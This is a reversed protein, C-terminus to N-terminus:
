YIGEQKNDTRYHQILKMSGRDGEYQLFDCNALKPINDVEEIPVNELLFRLARMVYGHSAVLVTDGYHGDFFYNLFLSIRDTADIMSEGGPPVGHFQGNLKFSEQLYPYYNNLEEKTLFYGYGNARERILPVQHTKVSDINLENKIIELTQRARVMGSHITSDYKLNLEKLIKSIEKAENKGKESLPTLHNPPQNNVMDKDDIAYSGDMLKNRESEGHRVIILTKIM